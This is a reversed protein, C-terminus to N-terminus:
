ITSFHFRSFAFRNVVGGRCDDADLFDASRDIGKKVADIFVLAYIAIKADVGTRLLVYVFGFLAFDFEMVAAIHAHTTREM